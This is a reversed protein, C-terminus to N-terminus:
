NGKLGSVIMQDQLFKLFSYNLKNAQKVKKKKLLKHLSKLFLRHASSKIKEIAVPSAPEHRAQILIPIEVQKFEYSFQSTNNKILFEIESNSLEETDILMNIKLAYLKEDDSSLQTPVLQARSAMFLINDGCLREHNGDTNLERKAEHWITPLAIEIVSTNLPQRKQERQYIYERLFSNFISHLEADEKSKYTDYLAQSSSSLHPNNVTM